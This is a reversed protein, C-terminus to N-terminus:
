ALSPGAAMTDFKKIHQRALAVRRADSPHDAIVSDVIMAAV